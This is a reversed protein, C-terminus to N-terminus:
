HLWTVLFSFFLCCAHSSVNLEPRVSPLALRCDGHEAGKAGSLLGAPFITQPAGWMDITMLAVLPSSLMHPFCTTSLTMVIMIHMSPSTRIKTVGCVPAWWSGRDMSDELFSYWLPNGNGVGPSRESGPILGADRASAPLNTAM